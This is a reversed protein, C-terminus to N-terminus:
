CSLFRVRCGRGRPAPWRPCHASRSASCTPSGGVSLHPRGLEEVRDDVVPPLGDAKRILKLMEVVLEQDEPALGEVTLVLRRIGPDRMLDLFRNEKDVESGGFYDVRVGFWNAIAQLKEVSPNKQLGRRLRSLYRSTVVNRGARQNIGEAAERLTYPPGEPNMTALLTDLREAIIGKGTGGSGDM